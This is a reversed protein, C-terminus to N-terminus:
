DASTLERWRFHDALYGAYFRCLHEYSHNLVKGTLYTELHDISGHWGGAVGSWPTGPGGPQYIDVEDAEDPLITKEPVADEAWTDLFSFVTGEGDAKLEFRLIGGFAHRFDIYENEKLDVITDEWHHAFIGGPRLDIEVPRIWWKDLGQKTSVAQWVQTVPIDLKRIWVMAHRGIFRGANEFLDNEFL